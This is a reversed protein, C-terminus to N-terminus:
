EPRVPKQVVPNPNPNLEEQNRKTVNTDGEEQLMLSLEAYNSLVRTVYNDDGNVYHYLAQRWTNYQTKYEILIHNVADINRKYDYVDIEEEWIGKAILEDLWVSEETEPIKTRIQGLGKAGASSRAFPDFGSEEKIVAVIMLYNKYKKAEQLFMTIYTKPIYPKANKYAWEVVKINVDHKISIADTLKQQASNLAQKTAFLDDSLTQNKQKQASLETLNKNTNHYVTYTLVLMLIM